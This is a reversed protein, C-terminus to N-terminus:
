VSDRRKGSRLRVVTHRTAVLGAAAWLLGALLDHALLGLAGARTDIATLTGTMPVLRSLAQMWVPCVGLPVIVGTLVPLFSAVITAGLYPDPLDVGIGAAAVGLLLGCIVAAPTLAIVRCLLATDSTPSLALVSGVAVAGTLVAILVPLAAVALWYAADLRRRTHVEQFIGLTRDTAVAAVIGGTVSTSLAVLAAAYGTRVLDPASLDAGMLVDFAIDLLPLVLLTTAATGATALATSSRWGVRARSTMRHWFSRM